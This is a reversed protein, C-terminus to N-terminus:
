MATKQEGCGQCEVMPIIKVGNDGPYHSDDVKKWGVNHNCDKHDKPWKKEEKKEEAM